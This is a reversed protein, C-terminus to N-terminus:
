ILLLLTCVLLGDDLGVGSSVGALGASQLDDSSKSWKRNKMGTQDSSLWRRVPSPEMKRLLHISGLSQPPHTSLSIRQRHRCSAGLIPTRYDSDCNTHMFFGFLCSCHILACHLENLHKCTRTSVLRNPIQFDKKYYYLLIPFCNLSM